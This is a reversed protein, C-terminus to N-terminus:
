VQLSDWYGGGKKPLEERYILKEYDCPTLWM